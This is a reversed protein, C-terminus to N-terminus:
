PPGGSCPKLSRSRRSRERGVALALLPITAYSWIVLAQQYAGPGLRLDLAKSLHAAVAMTQLAAMALPWFRDASLAVYLLGLLLAVDVTLVGTEVGLYRDPWPSHVIWTLAGAAVFMAATRREPAGGHRAAYFAVVVLLVIFLNRQGM